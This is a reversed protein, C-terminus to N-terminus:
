RRGQSERWRLCMFVRSASKGDTQFFLFVNIYHCLAAAVLCSAFLLVDASLETQPRMGLGILAENSSGRQAQVAM